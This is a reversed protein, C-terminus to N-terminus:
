KLSVYLQDHIISETNHGVERFRASLIERNEEITKGETAHVEILWHRIRNGVAAITEKTLAMMESGEIDIKAFDVSNLKNEDLITKLTKGAVLMGGVGYNNAISNMTTNETNFHFTIDGDTPSLAAEVIHINKYPAVLEGLIYLHAPTPEVTVIKDACNVVHLSFLGVNGGCDLINLGTSEPVFWRGYLNEANIQRIIIDACNRPDAFHSVIKDDDSNIDVYSGNTTRLKKELKM